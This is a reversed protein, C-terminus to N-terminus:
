WRSDTIVSVKPRFKKTVTLQKISKLAQTKKKIGPSFQEM